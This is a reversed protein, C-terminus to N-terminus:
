QLAVPTMIYKKIINNIDKTIIKGYDSSIYQMYLDCKYEQIFWRVMQKYSPMNGKCTRQFENFRRFVYDTLHPNNLNMPQRNHRGYQMIHEQFSLSPPNYSM